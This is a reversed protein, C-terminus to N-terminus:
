LSPCRFPSMGLYKSQFSFALRLREDSFYKSLEADLSMWPRLLPLLRLVHPSLVSKWNLFPSELCPRFRELKERNDTLFRRFNLADDPCLRGISREMGAVNPTAPM